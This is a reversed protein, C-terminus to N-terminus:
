LGGNLAIVAVDILDRSVGKSFSGKGGFAFITKPQAALTCVIIAEPRKLRKSAWPSSKCTILKFVTLNIM